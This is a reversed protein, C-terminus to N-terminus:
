NELLDLLYALIMDVENNIGACITSYVHDITASISLSCILDKSLRRKEAMSPHLYSCVINEASNSIIHM